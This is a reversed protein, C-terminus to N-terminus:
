RSFVRNLEAISNDRLPGTLLLYHRMPQTVIPVGKWMDGQCVSVTNSDYREGKLPM